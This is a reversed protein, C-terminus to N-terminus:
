SKLITGTELAFAAHASELSSIVATRKSSSVFMLCAEVKPAMSGQGFHGAALYDQMTQPDVQQLVQENATNFHLCVHEVATLIVLTDANILEAIKASAFHKDIVAAVGSYRQNREIVPIWGGGACIVIHGAKLAANIVAKEVVDTPLPSPVVRRYGRGSDEKMAYGKEEQLKLSTEYDYFAGIPKSPSEFRPDEADVVVQTVITAVTKNQGIARLRNDLANQLHYGIYGQSMAGCEPFPMDPTTSSDEFALNIMGVQPGNGHVLVVEHGATILDAIPVVVRELLAKQEEPTNGLANGGLSIVFRRM